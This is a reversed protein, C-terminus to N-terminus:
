GGSQLHAQSSDTQWFVALFPPCRLVGDGPAHQQISLQICFSSETNQNNFHQTVDYLLGCNNSILPLSPHVSLKTVSAARSTTVEVQEATTLNVPLVVFARHFSEGIRCEFTIPWCHGGHGGQTSDRFQITPRHQLLKKKVYTRMTCDMLCETPLNFNRPRPQLVSRLCEDTWAVNVLLTFTCFTLWMTFYRSM